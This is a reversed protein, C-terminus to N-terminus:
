EIRIVKLPRFLTIVLRDPAHMCAIKLLLNKSQLNKQIAKQLLWSYASIMVYEYNKLDKLYIKEEFIKIPLILFNRSIRNKCNAM